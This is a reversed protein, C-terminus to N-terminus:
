SVCLGLLTDRAHNVAAMAEHSGGARDPHVKLAMSRYASQVAARTCPLKVGLVDAAKQAESPSGGPPAPSPGRARGTRWFERWRAHAARVAHPITRFLERFFAEAEAADMETATVVRTAGDGGSQQPDRPPALPDTDTPGRPDFNQDLADLVQDRWHDCPEGAACTECLAVDRPAHALQVAALAHSLQAHPVFWSRLPPEWSSDPLTSEFFKGTKHSKKGTYILWGPEDAREHDDLAFVPLVHLTTAVPVAASRKSPKKAM